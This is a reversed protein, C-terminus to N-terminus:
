HIKNIKSILWAYITNYNNQFNRMLDNTLEIKSGKHLLYLKNDEISNKGHQFANRLVIIRDMLSALDKEDPHLAKFQAIKQAVDRMPTISNSLLYTGMYDNFCKVCESAHGSAADCNYSAKGSNPNFNYTDLLM